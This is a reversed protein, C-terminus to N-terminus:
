FHWFINWFLLTMVTAQKKATACGFIFINRQFKTHTNNTFVKIVYLGNKLHIPSQNQFFLTKPDSDLFLLYGLYGNQIVNLKVSNPTKRNRTVEFSFMRVTKLCKGNKIWFPLVHRWHFVMKEFIERRIEPVSDGGALSAHTLSLVESRAYNNGNTILGHRVSCQDPNMFFTTNTHLVARGMRWRTM